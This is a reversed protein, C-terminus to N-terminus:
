KDLTQLIANDITEAAGLDPKETALHSANALSHKRLYCTVTSYGITGKGLASNIKAHIVVASLHKKNLYLTISELDM